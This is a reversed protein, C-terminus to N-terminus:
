SNGIESNEVESRYNLFSGEKALKRSPHYITIENEIFLQKVRAYNLVEESVQIDIGKNQASVLKLYESHIESNFDTVVLDIGSIVIARASDMNPFKACLVMTDVLLPKAADYIGNREAHEGWFYKEPRTKARKECADNSGRVLGNYSFISPSTQGEKIFFCSVKTSFDKSLESFDRTTNLMKKDFDYQFNMDFGENM